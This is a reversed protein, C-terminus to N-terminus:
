SSQINTWEQWMVQDADGQEIWINAINNPLRELVWYSNLMKKKDIYKEGDQKDDALDKHLHKWIESDSESSWLM